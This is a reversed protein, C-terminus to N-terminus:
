HVITARECVPFLTLRHRAPVRVLVAHVHTKGRSCPIVIVTGIGEIGYAGFGDRACRSGSGVVDGARLAEEIVVEAM